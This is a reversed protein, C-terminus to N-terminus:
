DATREDELITRLASLFRSNDDSSGITVRLYGPLDYNQLPRVIIGHRLLSEYVASAREGFEICLFNAASPLCKLGLESCAASLRDRQRRNAAVNARLFDEDDLAALAAEQALRNVNFPQRIRDLWAAIVPSSLAYGVRLGALAFVKSFTQTVVLNPYQELWRDAHACSADAYEIYAQDVVVPLSSPVRQLFAQLEEEGLYTGTPNNPNAIFIMATHEDIRQLFADLNHGMPMAHDPLNADVVHMEAGCVRTLLGYVSFAHRACLAHKGPALFCRGLFDLVESSGNGLTICDRHLGHRRALREKLARGDGPPYFHLQSLCRSLRKDVCPSPGALNENSSLKLTPMTKDHGSQAKTRGPQYPQIRTIEPNWPAPQKESAAGMM